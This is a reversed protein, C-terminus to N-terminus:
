LRYVDRKNAHFSYRVFDPCFVKNGVGVVVTHYIEPITSRDVAQFLKGNRLWESYDFSQGKGTDYLEQVTSRIEKRSKKDYSLKYPLNAAITWDSNIGQLARDLRHEKDTMKERLIYPMPNINPDVIYGARVYKLEVVLAHTLDTAQFYLDIRGKKSDLGDDVWRESQVINYHENITPQKQVLGLILLKFAIESIGDTDFDLQTLNRFTTTVETLIFNLLNRIQWRASTKLVQALPEVKVEKLGILLEAKLESLVQDRLELKLAKVADEKLDKVFSDKAAAAHLKLDQLVEELRAIALDTEM